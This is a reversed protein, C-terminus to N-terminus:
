AVGQKELSYPAVKVKRDTRIPALRERLQTQQASWGAGTLPTFGREGLNGARVENEDLLSVLDGPGLDLGNLLGATAAVHREAHEVGGAGVLTLVGVGIGARKLDAVTARLADDDWTKGYLARIGPEGSEVGLSVRQLGLTTFRQWDADDALPPAFRDLFAHVGGKLAFAQAATQLYAAM